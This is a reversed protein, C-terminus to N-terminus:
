REPAQRSRVILHGLLTVLEDTNMREVYRLITERTMHNFLEAQAGEVETHDSVCVEGEFSGGGGELM